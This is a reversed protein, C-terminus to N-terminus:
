NWEDYDSKSHDIYSVVVCAGYGGEHLEIMIKSHDINKHGIQEKLKKLVNALTDKEIAVSAYM